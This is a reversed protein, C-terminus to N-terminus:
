LTRSSSALVGPQMWKWTRTLGEELATNAEWCLYEKARKPDLVNSPVDIHRAPRNIVRARSGTVQEMTSILAKLSTGVGSGINFLRFPSSQALTARFAQAVDTVYVYDRTIAGDGWLEIPECQLLRYLFVGIVGQEGKIPLRPGYCNSIRLIAYDLGHQIRFLELYKEIALKAIGYSCLPETRHSEPIAYEGTNGYVTGGSSSFIVRRVNERACIELLRLTATLNGSVDAVMDRNSSSPVTTSVLHCVYDCGKVAKALHEGSQFDGVMVEADKIAALITASPACRGFIRVNLGSRLLHETVHSGIFGTGGLVLCRPTNM